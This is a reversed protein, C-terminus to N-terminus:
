VDKAEALTALIVQLQQCSDNLIEASYDSIDGQDLDGLVDKLRKTLIDNLLSIHYNSLTITKM